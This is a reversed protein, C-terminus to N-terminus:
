VEVKKWKGQRFIIILIIGLLTESVAIAWYAGAPGWELGLALFYALPIEVLWFCVFNIWTPTRTDGAGNFAQSIIMGFSFFVYSACLIRICLVGAEIVKPNDTFFALFYDAWIFYIISIFLLFVANYLSTQWVSAEAREPKKAGLNQGVLTAAANAMGWSPMVTFIILRLGFTYGAVEESGFQAIIRVLFIWSASAIIYQGAGGAAINILNKIITWNAKFDSVKVKLIGLGRFLIYLQFLVGAGRGISTAVAAGEVGLEPFPGWGFILIPDLIINLGNALWLSRMAMNADGAGRFIGNLLFLLIIVINTGFIIRTYGVGTTIVAEEAGMLRLIDEAFYSGLAGMVIAMVVGIMIAQVAAQNAGEKNKAGVRRAVVATAATSLGIAVSYILMVVSETLGVTAVAEVSIKGVFYADVVAFLSEMLMELIMPISLLFIARRISGSTYEKEESNLAERFFDIIRSM